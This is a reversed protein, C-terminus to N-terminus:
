YDSETLYDSEGENNNKQNEEVAIARELQNVPLLIDLTLEIKKSLQEDDFCSGRFKHQAYRGIFELMEIYKLRLYNIATEDTSVLQKSMGWLVNFDKKSLSKDAKCMLEYLAQHSV